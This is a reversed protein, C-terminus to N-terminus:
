PEDATRDDQGVARLCFVVLVVSPDLVENGSVARAGVEGFLQAATANRARAVRRVYLVLADARRYNFQNSVM